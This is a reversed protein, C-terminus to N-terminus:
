KKYRGGDMEREKEAHLVVSCPPIKPQSRLQGLAFLPRKFRGDEQRKNKKWEIVVVPFM